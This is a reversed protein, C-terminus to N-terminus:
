LLSNSHVSMQVYKQCQVEPSLDHLHPYLMVMLQGLPIRYLYAHFFLKIGCLRHFVPLKALEENKSMEYLNLM